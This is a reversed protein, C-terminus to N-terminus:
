DNQEAIHRSLKLRDDAAMDVFDIGNGVQPYKTAVVAGCRIVENDLSLAVALRTGVEMTFM